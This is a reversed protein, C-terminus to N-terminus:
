QCLGNYPGLPLCAPWLPCDTDTQCRRGDLFCTSLTETSPCIGSQCDSAHLCPTGKPQQGKRPDCQHPLLQFEYNDGLKKWDVPLCQQGTTCGSGQCCQSCIGECCRGTLCEGDGQCREALRRTGGPVCARHLYFRQSMGLGCIQGAKCDSDTMCHGCVQVVANELDARWQQVKQCQGGLCDSASQCKAGDPLGKIVVPAEQCGSGKSVRLQSLVARGAGTKRVTVKVREFWTPPTISYGVSQFDDSALPHSYEVSGDALFDMQVILSVDDDRDAQVRFDLCTVDKSTAESTQSLVVSPGVLDVGHDSRHWTAVRKVQGQEVTWSCLEKGCWIDFGTDDLIPEGCEWGPLMTISALCVLLLGTKRPPAMTM